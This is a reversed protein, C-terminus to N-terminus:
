LQLSKELIFKRAEEDYELRRKVFSKNIKIAKKFLEEAEAEDNLLLEIKAINYLIACRSIKWIRKNSYAIVTKLFDRYKKIEEDNNALRVKAYIMDGQNYYKLNNQASYALSLKYLNNVNAAFMLTNKQTLHLVRESFSLVIILSTAAVLGPLLYHYYYPSKKKVNAINLLKFQQPSRIAVEPKSPVFIPDEAYVTVSLEDGKKLFPINIEFAKDTINETYKLGQSHEIGGNKLKATFAQINLTVDKITKLSPNVLTISYIGINKDDIKIPVADKVQYTIKPKINIIYNLFFGGLVTVILTALATIIINM